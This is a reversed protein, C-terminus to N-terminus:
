KLNIQLLDIIENKNFPKAIVYDMGAEYCKKQTETIVDATLAVIIPRYDLQKRVSQTLEFGTMEPMHIDTLLFDYHKTQMKEYAEKGNGVIDVKNGLLELIKSIVLQNVLNDEAVLIRLSSIYKKNFAKCEVKQLEEEELVSIPLNIQFSSGKGVESTLEISGDLLEILSKTISLGLGTGGYQRSIKSDEQKFEEWIKDVNAIGKGTDSVSVSLTNPLYFSASIEVKGHETFKIANSVLNMLIQKFRVSDSLICTPVTPAITLKYEIDKLIAKKSFLNYVNKISDHILFAHNDLEFKGSELKSYDLLDNLIVLLLEGSEKITQLLHHEEKDLSTSEELINLLGLVGNMPTRIEHSMKALFLSKSQNAEKEALEANKQLSIDTHTGTFRIPKGEEDREVVKGRDLIYVWHGKKHKMRHINEYFANEGNVHAMIDTYCQTLDDPHVKNEWTALTHEIEDYSYGLMEGWRENFFVDNTQPNWDWMGLRTGELVLELREKNYALDQEIKKQETIDTLYHLYNIQSGENLIQVTDIVWLCSGNQHTLQYTQQFNDKTIQNNPIVSTTLCFFDIYYKGLLQEKKYGLLEKINPTVFLIKHNEDSILCTFPSNNFIIQYDIEMNKKLYNM